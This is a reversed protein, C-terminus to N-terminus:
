NDNYYMKLASVEWEHWSFQKTYFVLSASQVWYMYLLLLHVHWEPTPCPVFVCVDPWIM